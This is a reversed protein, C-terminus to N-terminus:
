DLEDDEFMLSAIINSTRLFWSWKGLNESSVGGEFDKQFHGLINKIKEDKLFYIGVNISNCLSHEFHINFSIYQGSQIVVPM